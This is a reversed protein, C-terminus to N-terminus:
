FPSQDVADHGVGLELLVRALEGVAERAPRRAGVRAALALEVVPLVRAHALLQLELGGDLGLHRAGRVEDLADGWEHLLARRAERAASLGWPAFGDRREM